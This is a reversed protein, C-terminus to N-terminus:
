GWGGPGQQKQFDATHSTTLSAFTHEEDSHRRYSVEALLAVENFHSVNGQCPM